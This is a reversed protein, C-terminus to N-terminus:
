QGISSPKCGAKRPHLCPRTGYTHEVTTVSYNWLRRHGHRVGAADEQVQHLTNVGARQKLVDDHVDVVVVVAVGAIAVIVGTGPVLISDLGM